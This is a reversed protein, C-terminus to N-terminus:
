GGRLKYIDVSQDALIYVKANRRGFNICERESNLYLDITNGSVGVDAAIAYGYDPGNLIEVYVKTGVPIVKRDVAIIGARVKSGNATMGYYKDGPKRNTMGELNYAVAKVNITKTYKHNLEFSSSFTTYTKTGVYTISDVAEKIVVSSTLTKSVEKGNETVITYTDERKGNSGKKAAQTFGKLISDTKVTATKYPITVTETVKKEVVRIVSVILNDKIKTNVTVGNALRDMGSLKVGYESLLEGVTKSQTDVNKTVGDYKLTVPHSTVVVIATNNLSISDTAKQNVLDADNVTYGNEELVEGVTEKTTYVVQETGDISLTIPIAKKLIIEMGSDTLPKELSVNLEDYTNVQLENEALVDGVSDGFTYVETEEDGVVLTVKKARTIYIDTNDPSLTDEPNVNIEDNEGLEIEAIELAEAVSLSTTRIETLEGDDYISITYIGDQLKGSGMVVVTAVASVLLLVFVIACAANRIYAKWKENM